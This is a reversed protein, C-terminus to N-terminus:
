KMYNQKNKNNLIILLSMRLTSKKKKQGVSVTTDGVGGGKKELAKTPIVKGLTLHIFAKKKKKTFLISALFKICM